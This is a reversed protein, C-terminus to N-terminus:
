RLFRLEWADLPHYLQRGGDPTFGHHRYFAQARLNAELVWLYASREGLAGTLLAEGVGTGYWAARVYLAYLETPVPPDEHRAPGVSAYGIVEDGALALLRPPGLAIRDRWSTAWGHTDALHAELLGPDVLPGYTERWCARHMAAGADADRLTAARIVVGDPLM